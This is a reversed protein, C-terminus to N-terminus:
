QNNEKDDSEIIFTTKSDIDKNSLLDEYQKINGSWLYSIDKSTSGTRNLVYPLNNLKNVTALLYSLKKQITDSESVKEGEEWKWKEQPFQTSKWDKFGKIEDYLYEFSLPIYECNLTFNEGKIVNISPNLFYNNGNISAKYSSGGKGNKDPDNFKGVFYYPKENPEEPNSVRIFYTPYKINYDISNQTIPVYSYSIQKIYEGVESFQKGFKNSLTLARSHCYDRYRSPIDSRVDFYEKDIDNFPPTLVVPIGYADTAVLDFEGTDKYANPSTYVDTHTNSYLLTDGNNYKKDGNNDIYSINATYNYIAKDDQTQPACIVFSNAIKTGIGSKTASATGNGEIDSSGTRYVKDLSSLLKFPANTVIVNFNKGTQSLNGIHSSILNNDM